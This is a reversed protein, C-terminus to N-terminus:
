CTVVFEHYYEFTYSSEEEEKTLTIKVKYNGKELIDLSSVTINFIGEQSEEPIVTNANHIIEKSNTPGLISFNFKYAGNINRFYCMFCLKDLHFPIEPVKVNDNYLGIIITKGGIEQRIDDCILTYALCPKTIEKSM